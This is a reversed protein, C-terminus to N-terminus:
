SIIKDFMIKFDDDFEYENMLEALFNLRSSYDDITTIGSICSKDIYIDLAHKDTVNLKECFNEYADNYLKKANDIEPNPYIQTELIYGTVNKSVKDVVSRIYTNPIDVFSDDNVQKFKEYGERDKGFYTNVDNSYEMGNPTKNYYEYSYQKKYSKQMIKKMKEIYKQM